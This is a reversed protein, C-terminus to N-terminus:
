DSGSPDVYGAERQHRIALVIVFDDAIVYDYLALYGSKGRSIVLERYGHEAPRGILPHSALVDIASAILDYTDLAVEPDNESLFAALQALNEEAASALVIRAV